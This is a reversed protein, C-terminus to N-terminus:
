FAQSRIESIEGAVNKNIVKRIDEVYKTHGLAWMLKTLAAEKTMDGTSIVGAELARRGVEYRTLDVGGYVAQTTMLVPKEKSVSSVTSLLDRGRYPIGGAGYGEILIGDVAKALAMFAEPSLGPTLRIDAVNPNLEPDFVPEGRPLEPKHMIMLKEGKVYAIDPYNISQFANLGLSNVKSARTGLIIKDMFAVYIGPMGHRAFTVATRLNRPADSGPETIPLMSGTLVVPIPPNRVIFSLASSTYALTDTGHTIVIGDYDGFAEFVAKGITVWDEPQMLTSDVSLLDLSEIIEGSRPKIGAINLIEDIGLSAKYGRETMASAITGGTGIILIRM